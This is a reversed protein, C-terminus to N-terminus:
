RASATRKGASAKGDMLRVAYALQFDDTKNGGPPQVIALKTSSPQQEPSLHHPLDAESPRELKSFATTEDGQAVAVDPGIGTAQISRGSPTYYRATTLHLAGDQGDNLPIITQVSGKGFSTMGVITARKHDQLAGAVIESASATGGNILVILPKGQAIDGPKADYRQTDEPKRGRTSVIEGGTLFDDSVAIAQDLVGGGDDRLDIIYGKLGAGIQKKLSKVAAEVGDNTEENFAPIRIYGVDGVRHFKVAEVQIAARMLSVEFSKQAGSRLLTMKVPTGSRGRLLDQVKDLSLGQLGHGDIALISDGAKVGARSAPTDDIPAVVKVVGQDASIVLGVGGYAGSTKVQMDAFTKPDFYSSHPDLDSIMGNLADEVMKRDDPPEVYDARTVAFAAGFRDLARYASQANSDAAGRAVPLIVLAALFGAAAGLVTLSTRQM